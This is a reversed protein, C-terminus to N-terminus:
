PPCTTNQPPLTGHLLYANVYGDVCSSGELYSTHGQGNWSLLEANGLTKTLDIAGQYPTAPDHLNGIVLVPHASDPATPLPPVTRHPQWQQCTFMGAAFELGFMPYDRAWKQATARITADSPGPPSDNCSVTNFVDTLNSYQGNYRQYYRDSLDLLGTGSGGKAAVLASGLDPWESRSYLAESVGSLALFPTLPRGPQNTPLPKQRAAAVIDYVAQRPDSLSSCPDHSRCWMAFQDFADEFGKLQKEASELPGYLPDVAGDLVAVRVNHPFLHLYTAGLETGYSFGLYNLKPDGVAQRLQDLDRATQVTDYDALDAGYKATCKQAYDRALKKATAFGAPTLVDPSAADYSDQESNSLCDIPSSLGVGRPDFGVIDFHTLISTPLKPLLGLALEVGSGGPGGPNLMLSGLSSTNAKDHIRLLVLRIQTGSPDSYDLPVSVAACEFSLQNLLSQSLGLASLRIASSCDHFDAPAPTPAPPPASTSTSHPLPTGSTEGHGSIVSATCGAVLALAGVAIATARLPSRATM